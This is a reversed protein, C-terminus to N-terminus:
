TVLFSIPSCSFALSISQFKFLNFTFSISYIFHLLRFSYLASFYLGHIYFALFYLASFIFIFAFSVQTQNMHEPDKYLNHELSNICTCFKVIIRLCRNVVGECLMTLLSERPLWRTVTKRTKRSYVGRLM